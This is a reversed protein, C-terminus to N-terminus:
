GERPTRKKMYTRQVEAVCSQGSASKTRCQAQPSAAKALLDRVRTVVGERIDCDIDETTLGFCGCIPALPDKPYVGHTLADVRVRREFMDFYVVDCHAYPCFFASEALGGAAEPLVHAQWTERQVAVGLSGCDPCHLQGTDDPERVFAKNM